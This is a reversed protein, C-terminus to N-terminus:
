GRKAKEIFDHMAMETFLEIKVKTMKLMADWSLSPASVYHNSDLGYHHMSTKQAYEYDDQSIKGGFVSHFENILPLETKKFRNHSDIYEHPFIEKHYALSIQESSYGQKKFYETTIPHNGGFNKTLSALSSNM